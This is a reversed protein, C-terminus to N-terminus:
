SPIDPSSPPPPGCPRLRDSSGLVEGLYCAANPCPPTGSAPSYLLSPRRPCLLCDVLPCMRRMFSKMSWPQQAQTWSSSSNRVVFVTAPPNFHLLQLSWRISTSRGRDCMHMHACAQYTCVIRGRLSFSGDLRLSSYDAGDVLGRPLLRQRGPRRLGPLLRGRRSSAHLLGRWRRAPLLRERRRSAPLRGRRQNRVFSRRFQGRQLARVSSM